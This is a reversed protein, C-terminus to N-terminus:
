RHDLASSLRRYEFVSLILVMVLAFTQMLSRNHKRQSASLGFFCKRHAETDFVTATGVEDSDGRWGRGLCRVAAPYGWQHLWKDKEASRRSVM